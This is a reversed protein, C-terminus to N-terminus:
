TITLTRRAMRGLDGADALLITLPGIPAAADITITAQAGALVIDAVGAPRGGPPEALATGDSAALTITAGRAVSTGGPSDLDFHPEVQVLASVTVTSGSPGVALAITLAGATEPPQDAPLNVRIAGGDGLFEDLPANDTVPEPAFTPTLSPTGTFSVAPAGPDLPAPVLLLLSDGSRATAVAAATHDASARLPITDVVQVQFRRVAVDIDAPLHMPALGSDFRGTAADFHYFRSVEADDTGLLGRATLTRGEAQLLTGQGGVTLRYVRAGNPEVALVARQHPIMDFTASEAIVVGAATVAVDAPTRNFFFSAEGANQADIANAANAVTSTIQFNGTAPPRTFAVYIGASRELTQNVPVFGRPAVATFVNGSDVTAFAAPAAVSGGGANLAFVQNIPVGPANQLNTQVFDGAGDRSGGGVTVWYRAVDGIVPVDGHLTALPSYTDGSKRSAEQEMQSRHPNDRQLANDIWFYGCIPPVLAAWSQTGFLYRASRAFVQGAINSRDPMNRAIIQGWPDHVYQMWGVNLEDLLWSDLWGTPDQSGIKGVLFENVETNEPLLPDAIEIADPEVKTVLTRQTAGSAARVEIRDHVQLSPRGGVPAWQLRAPANPDAMAAIFYDRLGFIADGPSYISLEVEVPAPPGAPSWQPTPMTLVVTRDAVSEVVRVVIRDGAKLAVLVGAALGELQQGVALELRLQDAQLTAAVRSRAARRIAAIILHILSALGGWSALTLVNLLGGITLLQGINTIWELVDTGTGGLPRRIQVPGATIGSQSLARRAADTLEVGGGEAAPGLEVLVSRRNQAVQARGNAELLTADTATLRGDGFTGPGYPTFDPGGAATLDTALELAWMPFGALLLPGWKASQLTHTLEHDTLAQRRTNEIGVNEHDEPVRVTGPHMAGAAPDPRDLWPVVAASQMPILALAPDTVSVTAGDTTFQTTFAATGSLAVIDFSGAPGAASDLTVTLPQNASTVEVAYVTGGDIIALRVGNAFDQPRWVDLTVAAGSISGNIGIRATGTRPDAAVLRRITIGATGAPIIAADDGFTITGGAVGIIRILREAGGPLQVEALEGEGFRPFDIRAGAVVPRVRLVRDDVRVADYFLNAAEGTILAAELGTGTIPLARDLTVTLTLRRIQALTPAGGATPVLGVLESPRLGGPPSAPNVTATAAGAGLTAGSVLVAGTTPATGPFAVIQLATTQPPVPASLAFTQATTATTGAISPASRRFREVAFAAPNTDPLPESLVIADYNRATVQRAASAAGQVVVFGGAPALGPGGPVYTLQAAADAAATLRGIEAGPALRAWGVATGGVGFGSVDRDLTAVAGAVSLVIAALTGGVVIAEGAGPVGGTVIELETAAAGTRADFAGTAIGLRVVAGAGLGPPLAADLALRAELAVVGAAGLAPGGRSLRVVSVAPVYDLSSGAADLLRDRGSVPTLPETGAPASLTDYTLPGAALGTLVADTRLLTVGVAEDVALVRGVTLVGAPDTLAFAAGGAIGLSTGPLSVAAFAGITGTLVAGAPEVEALTAPGPKIGRQPAAFHLGGSPFVPVRSGPFTAEADGGNRSWNLLPAGNPAERQGRMLFPTRGNPACRLATGYLGPRFAAAPSFLRADELNTYSVEEEFILFQYTWAVPQIRAMWGDARLGFADFNKATQWEADFPEAGVAKSVIWGVPSFQLTLWMGLLSGITNQLSWTLASPILWWLDSIGGTPDALTVPNNRCVTYPGSAPLEVPLPGTYGGRRRPDGAEGNVPDPADFSGTLPDLRRLPLHVLGGAIAGGFLGPLDGAGLLAEGFADRPFRDCGQATIRRVPTGTPDLSYVEALEGEPGGALAGLCHWGDWVYTRAPTGDRGLVAVLRGLPDLRWHSPLANLPTRRGEGDYAIDLRRGGERWGLPRGDEGRLIHRLGDPTGIVALHDGDYGYDWAGAPGRCSIVRGRGDYGVDVGDVRNLRGMDDLGYRESWRHRGATVRRVMGNPLFVTETEALTGFALRGPATSRVHMRKGGSISLLTGEPTREVVLPVAAGPIPIIESQSGSM